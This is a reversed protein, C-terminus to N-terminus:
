DKVDVSVVNMKKRFVIEIKLKCYPLQSVLEYLSSWLNQQISLLPQWATFCLFSDMPHM